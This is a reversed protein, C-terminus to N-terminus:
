RGTKKIRGTNRVGETGKEEKYGGVEGCRV